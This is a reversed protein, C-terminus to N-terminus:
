FLNLISVKDQLPGTLDQGGGGQRSRWSSGTGCTCQGQENKLKALLDMGMNASATGEGVRNRMRGKVHRREGEKPRQESSLDVSWGVQFLGM